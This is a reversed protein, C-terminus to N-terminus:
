EHRSEGQWQALIARALNENEERSRGYIKLTFQEGFSLIYLTEGHAKELQSSSPSVEVITLLDHYQTNGVVWADSELISDVQASLTRSENSEYDVLPRNSGANQSRFEAFGNEFTAPRYDIPLCITRVGFILCWAEDRTHVWREAPEISAIAAGALGFLVIACCFLSSAKPSKYAFSM